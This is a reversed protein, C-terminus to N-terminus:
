YSSTNWKDGITVEAALAPWLFLYFARSVIASFVAIQSSTSGLYFWSARSRRAIESFMTEFHRARPSEFERGEPEYPSKASCALV